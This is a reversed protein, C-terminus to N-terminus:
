MYLMNSFYHSDNWYSEQPELRKRNNVRKGFTASAFLNREKTKLLKEM